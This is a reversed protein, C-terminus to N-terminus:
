SPTFRTLGGSRSAESADGQSLRQGVPDDVTHGCIVGRMGLVLFADFEGRGPGAHEPQLRCQRHHHLCHHRGAQQTPAIDRPHHTLVRRADCAQGILAPWQLHPLRGVQRHHVGVGGPRDGARGPWGTPWCATQTSSGARWRSRSGAARSPSRARRSSGPMFEPVSAPDSIKAATSTMSIATSARSIIRPQRRRESRCASSSPSKGSTGSCTLEAVTVVRPRYTPAVSDGAQFSRTVTPSRPYRLLATSVRYGDPMM